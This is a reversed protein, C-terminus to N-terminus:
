GAGRILKRSVERNVEAEAWDPNLFQIRAALVLRATRHAQCAIAVREAPTKARYIAAMDEDVAEIQGPDLRWKV